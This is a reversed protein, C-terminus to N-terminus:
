LLSIAMVMEDGKEFGSDNCSFALEIGMIVDLILNLYVYHIDFSTSLLAFILLYMVSAKKFITFNMTYLKRLSYFHGFGKSSM